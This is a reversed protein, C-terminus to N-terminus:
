RAATSCCAARRRRTCARSSTSSRRRAPATRASIGVLEGSGIQPDAVSPPSGGFQMTVHDLHLLPARERADGQKKGTLAGRCSATGMLGQPRTIMLIILMLAYIVMRYDKVARLAEPMLTLSSRPSCRAVSAAWAASIVMAIVEISKSPVHFTSPNLYSLYTRSCAARSAPSSRASCSRPSRTPPRTWASRPRSRTM